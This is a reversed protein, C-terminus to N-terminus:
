APEGRACLRLHKTAPRIWFLLKEMLCYLRYAGIHQTIGGHESETVKSKRIADLLSTKGHDVHGMLTVIAPRPLLVQSSDDEKHM